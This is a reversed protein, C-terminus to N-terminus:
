GITFFRYKRRHVARFLVRRNRGASYEAKYLNDITADLGNDLIYKKAGDSLPELNEAMELAEETESVNQETAPLDAIRLAAEIQGVGARGLVEPM